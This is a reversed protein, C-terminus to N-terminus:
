GVRKCACPDLINAAFPGLGFDHAPRLKGVDFRDPVRGKIRTQIEDRMLGPGIGDHSAGACAPM